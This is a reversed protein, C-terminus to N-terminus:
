KGNGRPQAAVDALGTAKGDALVLQELYASLSIGQQAAAMKALRKPGSAFTIYTLCKDAM